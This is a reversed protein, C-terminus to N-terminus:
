DRTHGLAPLLITDVIAAIEPPTPLTGNYLRQQIILAPGVRAILESVAAARIEGRRAARRIATMISDLRPELLTDIVTSTLEHHQERDTALELILNTLAQGVPQTMAESMHELQAILDDRLNGTDTRPEAEAPPQQDLVHLILEQKNSWRRYLPAKGTGARAAVAQMTLARYGRDALEAYVADVIAADLQKGRRRHDNPTTRPTTM